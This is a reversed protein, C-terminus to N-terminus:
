GRVNQKIIEELQAIRRELQQMSPLPKIGANQLAVNAAIRITPLFGDGNPFCQLCEKDIIWHGIVTDENIPLNYRISLSAILDGCSKLAHPSIPNMSEFGIHLLYLDPHEAEVVLERWTSHFLRQTAWAVNGDEVLQHQTGDYAIAYHVSSHENRIHARSLQTRAHTIYADMPTELRHLMIAKIAYGNRGQRLQPIGFRKINHTHNHRLYTM